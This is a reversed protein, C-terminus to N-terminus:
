VPRQQPMKPYECVIDGITEELNGSSNDKRCIEFSNSTHNFHGLTKVTLPSGGTIKCVISSGRFGFGLEEKSETVELVEEKDEKGKAFHEVIFTRYSKNQERV